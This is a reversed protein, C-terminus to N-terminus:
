HGLEALKTKITYYLIKIQGLPLKKLDNTIENVMYESSEFDPYTKNEEFHKEIIKYLKPKEKEWNNLTQRSINFLKAIDEKKM